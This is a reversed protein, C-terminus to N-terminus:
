SKHAGKPCYGRLHQVQWGGETRLFAHPANWRWTYCEDLTPHDIPRVTLTVWGEAILRKADLRAQKATTLYGVNRGGFHDKNAHFHVADGDALARTM